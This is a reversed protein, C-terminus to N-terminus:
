LLEDGITSKGLEKREALPDTGIHGAVPFVYCDGLKEWEPTALLRKALAQSQAAREPGM